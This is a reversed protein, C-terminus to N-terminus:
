QLDYQHLLISAKIVTSGVYITKKSLLLIDLRLLSIIDEMIPTDLDITDNSMLKNYTSLLGRKELEVRNAETEHPLQESLVLEKDINFINM